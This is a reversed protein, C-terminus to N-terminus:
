GLLREKLETKVSLRSMLMSCLSTLAMSLLLLLLVGIALLAVYVRVDLEDCGAGAFGSRCSCCPTASVNSSGAGCERWDTTCVGRGSCARRKSEKKSEGKSKSEGKGSSDGSSGGGRGGADAPAESVGGGDHGGGDGDGDGGGGASVANAIDIAQHALSLIWSAPGMSGGNGGNGLAICKGLLLDDCTSFKSLDKSHDGTWMRRMTWYIERPRLADISNDCDTPSTVGFRGRM